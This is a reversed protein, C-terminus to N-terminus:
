ILDYLDGYMIEEEWVEDPIEEGEPFIEVEEPLSEPATEAIEEVDMNSQSLYDIMEQDSLQALLETSDPAHTGAGESQWFWVAIALLSAAAASVVMPYMPALKGPRKGAEKEEAVKDMIRNPLSDFYGEPTRFRAQGDRGPLTLKTKETHKKQPKM